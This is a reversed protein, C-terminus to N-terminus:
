KIRGSEIGVAQAVLADAQSRLSQASSFQMAAELQQAQAYMASAAERMQAPRDDKSLIKYAGYGLAALILINM